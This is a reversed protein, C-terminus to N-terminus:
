DGNRAQSPFRDSFFSKYDKYPRTRGVNGVSQDKPPKKKPSLIIEVRQNEENARPSADSDTLPHYHGFGHVTMKAADVGNAQFFAAVAQARQQSVTWSRESWLSQGAEESADTYGRLDITRGGEKLYASLHSLYGRVAPDIEQTGKRMLQKRELRIVIRRNEVNVRDPDLGHTSCMTRLDNLERDMPSVPLKRNEAVHAAPMMTGPAKAVISSSMGFSERVSGMAQKQLAKDITSMSVLLVFFSLLLICLDAYTILWGVSNQPAHPFHKRRAM